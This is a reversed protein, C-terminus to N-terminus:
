SVHTRDEASGLCSYNFMVIAIEEKTLTSNSNLHCKPHYSDEKKVQKIANDVYRSFLNGHEGSANLFVQMQRRVKFLLKIKQEFLDPSLTLTTHRDSLDIAPITTMMEDYDPFPEEGKKVM